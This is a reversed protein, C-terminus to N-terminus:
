SYVLSHLKEIGSQKVKISNGKLELRQKVYAKIKPHLFKVQEAQNGTVGEVTFFKKEGRFPIYKSLEEQTPTALSGGARYYIGAQNRHLFISSNNYHDFLARTCFDELNNDDLITYKGNYFRWNLNLLAPNFKVTTMMENYLQVITSTHVNPLTNGGNSSTGINNIYIHPGGEISEWKVYGDLEHLLLSFIDPDYSSGLLSICNRIDGEGLCFGTYNGPMTDINHYYYSHVNLHSHSYGSRYEDITMRGRVGEMPYFLSSTVPTAKRYHDMLRIPIRVYLDTITHKENRSNTIEFEPFYIIPYIRTIKFREFITFENDHNSGYTNTHTRFVPEIKYQIDWRDPYIHELHEVMSTIMNISSSSLRSELGTTNGALTHLSFYKSLERSRLIIQDTSM